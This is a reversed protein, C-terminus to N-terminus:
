GLVHRYRCIRRRVGDFAFEGYELRYGPMRENLKRCGLNDEVCTVVLEGIGLRKAERFLAPFVKTGYGKGREEPRLCLGLHGGYVELVDNLRPRLNAVGICRGELMMWFTVSPVIGPPLGVGAAADRYEAFITKRWSGFKEPDHLIYDNHVRGWSARCFDLYAALFEPAPSVLKVDRDDAM